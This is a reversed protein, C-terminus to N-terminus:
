AGTNVAQRALLKWHEPAKKWIEIVELDFTMDKGEYIIDASFHHREVATDGNLVLTRGTLDVRKFVESGSRVVEAFEERTQVVGNSHGFTLDPSSYELILDPRREIMGLRFKEIADEVELREVSQDLRTTRFDVSRLGRVKKTVGGESAVEVFSSATVHSTEAGRQDYGQTWVYAYSGILGVSLFGGLVVSSTKM